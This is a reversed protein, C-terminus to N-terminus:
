KCEATEERSNVKVSGDSIVTIHYKYNMFFHSRPGSVRLQRITTGTWQSNVWSGMVTGNTGGSATFREGSSLGTGKLGQTNEHYNMTFGRDTWSIQQVFNVTGTLVVEEGAGGNACPVFLTTEFPVAVNSNRNSLGPSVNAAAVDNIAPLPIDAANKSCSFLLGAALVSLFGAIATRLTSIQMLNQM